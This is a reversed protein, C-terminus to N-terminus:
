KKKGTEKKPEDKLLAFKGNKVTLMEFSSMDLGNHDQASFNFIGATGVVGKLGEIASRVAEKDTSNAKEIAKTLILLADYAHGGFTSSEEGRNKLEYEKKYKM